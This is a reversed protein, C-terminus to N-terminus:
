RSVFYVQRWALILSLSAIIIIAVHIGIISEGEYETGVGSCETSYAELTSEVNALSQLSYGIYIDWDM